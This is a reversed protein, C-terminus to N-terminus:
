KYGFPFEKLKKSSFLGVLGGSITQYITSTLHLGYKTLRWGTSNDFNDSLGTSRRGIKALQYWILKLRGVNLFPNFAKIDVSRRWVNCVTQWLISFKKVSKQVVTEACFFIVQSSLCLIPRGVFFSTSIKWSLLQRVASQQGFLELVQFFAM